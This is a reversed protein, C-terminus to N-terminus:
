LSSLALVYVGDWKVLRFGLGPCLEKV